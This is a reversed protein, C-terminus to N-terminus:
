AADTDDDGIMSAAGPPGFPLIRDSDQGTTKSVQSMDDAGLCLLKVPVTKDGPAQPPARRDASATVVGAM